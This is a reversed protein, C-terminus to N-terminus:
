IKFILFIVQFNGPFESFDAFSFNFIPLQPFFRFFEKFLEFFDTSQSFILYFGLNEFKGCKEIHFFFLLFHLLQFIGFIKGEIFNFHFNKWGIIWNFINWFYIILSIWM